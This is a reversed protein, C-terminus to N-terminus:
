KLDGMKSCLVGRALLKQKEAEPDAKKYELVTELLKKPEGSSFHKRCGDLMRNLAEIM